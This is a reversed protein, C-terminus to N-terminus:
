SSLPASSRRGLPNLSEETMMSGAAAHAKLVGHLAGGPATLESFGGAAELSGDRLVAIRGAARMLAVRHTIVVCTRGRASREIAEQVAEETLTDLSSSVEDVILVESRKLLARALSFRQKEGGSLGAGGDGVRTGLGEPLRKVLGDLRVSRLVEDLEPQSVARGLGYTLNALLTDNFLLTDQGAFAFAEALSAGTFERLDTGDAFLTGPPCDYLRLLLHAVTTKGSGTPGVLATTTGRPFDLSLGKLVPVGPRYAFSLNRVRLADKLGAWRASGEPVIHKDEDSMVAEIRKLSLQAQVSGIGFEHFVSFRPVSLHVLYFFVLYHSLDVSHEARMMWNIAFAIFLLSLFAGFDQLPKSMAQVRDIRDQHAAEERVSAVFREKEAGYTSNVKVLPICSVLNFIIRRVQAISRDWSFSEDRARAVLRNMAIPFIPLVLWAVLSLKWSIWLMMGTFAALSMLGSLLAQYVRLQNAVTQSHAIIVHHIDGINRRDFYLKGFRLHREFVLERLHSEALRVQRTTCRAAAYDAANKVLVCLLVLSALALFVGAPSEMLRPEIRHLAQTVGLSDRVSLYDNRIVGQTLPILLRIALLHLLVAAFSAAASLVLLRFQVRSRRLLAMVRRMNGFGLWIDKLGYQSPHKDSSM